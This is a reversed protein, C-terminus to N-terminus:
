VADVQRTVRLKRYSICGVLTSKYNCHSISFVGGKFDLLMEWHEQHAVRQASPDSRLLGFLSIQLVHLLVLIRAAADVKDLVGVVGVEEILHCSLLFLRHEISSLKEIHLHGSKARSVEFVLMTNLSMETGYSKEFSMANVVLILLIDCDGLTFLHWDIRESIANLHDLEVILVGSCRQVVEVKIM